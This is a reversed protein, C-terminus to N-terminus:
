ANIKVVADLFDSIAKELIPKTLCEEPLHHKKSISSTKYALKTATQKTIKQPSNVVENVEFGGKKRDYKFTLSSTSGGKPRINVKAIHEVYKQEVTMSFHGDMFGKEVLNVRVANLAPVIVENLAKATADYQGGSIYAPEETPNKPTM